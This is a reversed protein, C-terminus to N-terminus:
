VPIIVIYIYVYVGWGYRGTQRRDATLRVLQVCARLIVVYLCSVPRASESHTDTDEDEELCGSGHQDEM